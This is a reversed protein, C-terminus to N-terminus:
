FHLHCNWNQSFYAHTLSFRFFVFLKYHPFHTQQFFTSLCFGRVAKLRFQLQQNHLKEKREWGDKRLVTAPVIKLSTTKHDLKDTNSTQNVSMWILPFKSYQSCIDWLFFCFVFFLCVIERLRFWRLCSVWVNFFVNVKSFALVM